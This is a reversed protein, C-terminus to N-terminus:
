DTSTRISASLKKHRDAKSKDAKAKQKTLVKSALYKEVAKVTEKDAKTNADSM